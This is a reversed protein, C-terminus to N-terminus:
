PKLLHSSAPFLNCTLVGSYAALRQWGQRVACVGAQATADSKSVPRARRPGSVRRGRPVCEWLTVATRGAGPCVVPLLHLPGWESRVLTRERSNQTEAVVCVAM